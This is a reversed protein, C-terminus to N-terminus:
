GLPALLRVLARVRDNFLRPLLLNGAARTNAESLTPGPAILGAVAGAKLGQAIALSWPQILEGAAAGAIGAGVVKGNPRVIVKVLGGSRHEARARDNEAFPWRLICIRGYADRAGNETLGARALEPETYTVRALGGLDVRAPLRFLANRLVVGAHHRGVHALRPAGAVVAGAAFIRKNTTRLRADTVIGDVGAAVGASGLDLGDVCATRGTAVLLASGAIRRGDALMLAVADPGGEVGDVVGAEILRVGDGTLRHRIVDVLEADEGSLISGREVLTVPCGLRAYAQALELGVPGGGLVLLHRPRQGLGFITESTLYPVRDLGPIAPIVPRSGTAIVFRRATVTLTGARVTRPGTFRAEAQIVRVGLAALREASDDLAREAVVRRIHDHVRALDVAPEGGDIGFRGAGRVAAATRAAALLAQVPLDGGDLGGGGLADREILVTAAGLQAAGAAVALGGSGAGIVCLDTSVVAETM